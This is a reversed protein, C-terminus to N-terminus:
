HSAHVLVVHFPESELTLTVQWCSVHRRFGLQHGRGTIVQPLACQLAFPTGAFRSKARGAVMNIMEGVGDIVDDDSLGDPSQGLLRGVIRRALDFRFTLAVFGEGRAGLFGVLGSVDGQLHGRPAVGVEALDPALGAMTRLTAVTAEVFPDLFQHDVAAPPSEPESVHNASREPQM